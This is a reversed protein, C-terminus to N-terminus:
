QCFIAYISYLISIGSFTVCQDKLYQLLVTSVEVPMAVSVFFWVRSQTHTTSQKERQASVLIVNNKVIELHEGLGKHNWERRLFLHSHSSIQASSCWM